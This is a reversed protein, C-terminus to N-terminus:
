RTIKIGVGSRYYGGAMYSWTMGRRDRGTLTIQVSDDWIREPNDVIQLFLRVRGAAARKGSTTGWAIVRVRM